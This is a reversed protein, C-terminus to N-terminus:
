KRVREKQYVLVNTFHNGNIDTGKTTVTLEKGDHSVVATATAVVQNGKKLTAQITNPSALDAVIMDAGYPADGTIPYAKGDLNSTYEYERTAGNENVRRVSVRLGKDSNVIMRVEDETAHGTAFKSQGPNMKWTGVFDDAKAFALGALCLFLVMASTIAVVKKM